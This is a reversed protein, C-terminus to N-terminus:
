RATTASSLPGFVVTHPVALDAAFVEAVEVFALATGLLPKQYMSPGVLITTHVGTGIRTRRNSFTRRFSFSFQLEPKILRPRRLPSGSERRDVLVLYRDLLTVIQGRAIPWYRAIVGFLRGFSPRDSSAKLSRRFLRRDLLLTDVPCAHTHQRQPRTSSRVPSFLLGARRFNCRRESARALSREPLFPSPSPRGGDLRTIMGPPLADM